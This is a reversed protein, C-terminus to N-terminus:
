NSIEERLRANEKEIQDLAQELEEVKKALDQVAKTLYAVLANYRIGIPEGTPNQVALPLEAQVSQALFGLKIPGSPEDKWRFRVARLALLNGSAERLPVIHTKLREDSITTYGYATFSNDANLVVPDPPYTNGYTNAIRFRPRCCTSSGTLDPYEWFELNRAGVGFGGDPDAYWIRWAYNLSRNVLHYGILAQQGDSPMLSAVAVSSTHITAGTLPYPVRVELDCTPFATGIGVRPQALAWGVILLGVGTRAM